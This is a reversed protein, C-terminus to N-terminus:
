LMPSLFRRKEDFLDTPSDLLRIRVSGPADHHNQATHHREARSLIQFRDPSPQSRAANKINTEM